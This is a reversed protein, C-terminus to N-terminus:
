GRSWTRFGTCSGSSGGERGAEQKGDEVWLRPQEEVTVLSSIM